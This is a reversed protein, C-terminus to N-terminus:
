AIFNANDQFYNSFYFRKEKTLFDLKLRYKQLFHFLYEIKARQTQTLYFFITLFSGKHNSIPEVAVQKKLSIKAM